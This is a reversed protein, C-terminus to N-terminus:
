ELGARLIQERENEWKTRGVGRKDFRLSNVAGGSGEVRHKSVLEGQM